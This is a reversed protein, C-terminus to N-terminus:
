QRLAIKNPDLLLRAVKRGLRIHQTLIEEVDEQTEYRYWVGDPYIVMTPGHECLNLCGAHNIRVNRLGTVMARRCMLDCLERAQKDACCGRWHGAPRQNICCFVHVDYFGTRSRRRDASQEGLGITM